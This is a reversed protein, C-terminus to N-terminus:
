NKSICSDKDKCDIGIVHSEARAFSDGERAYQDQHEEQLPIDGPAKSRGLGGVGGAAITQRLGELLHQAVAGEGGRVGDLGELNHGFHARISELFGVGVARDLDDSGKPDEHYEAGADGDDVLRKNSRM